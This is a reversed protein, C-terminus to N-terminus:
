VEVEELADKLKGNLNVLEKNNDIKNGFELITPSLLDPTVIKNDGSLVVLREVENELQRVNGPWSYNLIKELCASSLVKIVKGVEGCKVSLFHDILLSIDEKRERLSPISINIVNIRYFLDERFSGDIMMEKINKNTAAIIRVNTKKPTVSGM